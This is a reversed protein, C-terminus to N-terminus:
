GYQEEQDSLRMIINSDDWNFWKCINTNKTPKINYKELYEKRYRLSGRIKKSHYDICIKELFQSEFWVNGKFWIKPEVPNVGM